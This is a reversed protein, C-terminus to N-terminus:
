APQATRSPVDRPNLAREPERREGVPERAAPRVRLRAREVGEVEPQSRQEPDAMAHAARPEREARLGVTRQEAGFGHAEESDGRQNRRQAEGHEKRRVERQRPSPGLADHRERDEVVREHRVVERRLMEAREREIARAGSAARTRARPAQVPQERETDAPHEHEHRVHQGSGRSILLEPDVAAAGDRSV